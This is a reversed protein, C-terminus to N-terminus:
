EFQFLTLSRAQRRAYRVRMSRYFAAIQEGTFQFAHEFVHFQGFIDHDGEILYVLRAREFALSCKAVREMRACARGLLM